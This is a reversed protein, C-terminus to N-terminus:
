ENTSVCIEEYFLLIKVMNDTYDIYINSVFYVDYVFKLLGLGTM